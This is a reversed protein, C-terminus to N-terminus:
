LLLVFLNPNIVLLSPFHIVSSRRNFSLHLSYLITMMRLMMMPCVYHGMTPRLGRCETELKANIHRRIRGIGHVSMYILLIIQFVRSTEKIVFRLSTQLGQKGTIHYAHSVHVTVFDTLPLILPIANQQKDYFTKCEMSRCPSWCTSAVRDIGGPRHWGASAVRDIGGPRHWGASAVRGIGGQRHWGTSAVRDIGGPRHWGTSAVRDIGGPRHWGTSAM